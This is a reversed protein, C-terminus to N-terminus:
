FHDPITKRLHEEFRGVEAMSNLRWDPDIARGLDWWLWAKRMDFSSYYMDGLDKFAPSAWPYAAIHVCHCDTPSPMKEFIAKPWKNADKTGCALNAFTVYRFTGFPLTDLDDANALYYAAKERDSGEGRSGALGIAHLFEASAPAQFQRRLSPMLEQLLKQRKRDSQFTGGYQQTLMLMQLVAELARNAACASRIQDAIDQFSPRPPSALGSLADIARKLARAEATSGQAEHSISAALGSPLPYAARTRQVSLFKIIETSEQLRNTAATSSATHPVPQFRALELREPLAGSAAIAAGIQPHFIFHRSFSRLISKSETGSLRFGKRSAKGVAKDGLHWVVGDSDKSTVLRPSTKGQVGLEQEAWFPDNLQDPFEPNDRLVQVADHLIKRNSLEILRFAPQWFYSQNDITDQGNRWTFTRGLSFDDLQNHGDISAFVFDSALIISGSTTSTEGTQLRTERTCQIVTTDIASVNREARLRESGWDPSVFANPMSSTAIRAIVDGGWIVSRAPILWFSRFRGAVGCCVELAPRKAM